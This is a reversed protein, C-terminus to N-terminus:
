KCKDCYTRNYPVFVGCTKCKHKKAAAVRGKSKQYSVRGGKGGRARRGDRLTRRRRPNSRVKEEFFSTYILYAGLGVAGAILLWQWWPRAATAANSTQGLPQIPTGPEYYGNVATPGEIGPQANTVMSRIGVPRPQNRIAHRGRTQDPIGPQRNKYEEPHYVIYPSTYDGWETKLVEPKQRTYPVIKM